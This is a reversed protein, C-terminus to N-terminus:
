RASVAMRFPASLQRGLQLAFGGTVYLLVLSALTLQGLALQHSVLALDALGAHQSCLQSFQLSALSGIVLPFTLAAFGPHFPARLLRVLLLWVLLNLLMALMYLGACLLLDPLQQLQHCYALYAVLTLSAPAALIALTSQQAAAPAPLLILRYLMLPLLLAFMLAGFGFLGAAFPTPVRAPASVVAVLIGVPPVFWSPLMQSLQWHRLRARLFILLLLLHLAVGASWLVLRVKGGTSQSLVLLAMAMTPAVSGALPDQLQQWCLKPDALLKLPLLLWLAGALLSLSLSLLGSSGSIQQVLQALSALGLTLGALPVPLTALSQRLLQFM